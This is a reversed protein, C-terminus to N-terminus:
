RDVLGDIPNALLYQYVISMLSSDTGIVLSTVYADWSVLFPSQATAYRLRIEQESKSNVICNGIVDCESTFSGVKWFHLNGIYCVKFM